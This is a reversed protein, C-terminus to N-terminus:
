FLVGFQLYASTTSSIKLFDEGFKDEHIGDGKEIVLEITYDILKLDFEVGLCFSIADQFKSYAFLNTEYEILEEGSWDKSKFFAETDIFFSYAYGGRIFPKVKHMGRLINYRLSVPFELSEVDIDIFNIYNGVEVEEFNGYSFKTFAPDFVLEFREGFFRPQITVIAGAKICFNPTFSYYESTTYYPRVEDSLYLNSYGVAGKLGSRIKLPSSDQDSYMQGQSGSFTFPLVILFLFLNRLRCTRNEKRIFYM